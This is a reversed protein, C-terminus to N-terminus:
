SSSRRDTHFSHTGDSGSSNIAPSPTAAVSASTTRRSTSVALTSWTTTTNDLRSTPVTPGVKRSNVRVIRSMPPTVGTTSGGQRNHTPEDREPPRQRGPVSVPNDRRVLESPAQRRSAALAALAGLVGLAFSMRITLRDTVHMEFRPRGHVSLYLYAATIAAVVGPARGLRHGLLAPAVLLVPWAIFRPTPVLAIALAAVLVCALVVETLFKVTVPQEVDFPSGLTADGGPDDAGNTAGAGTAHMESPNCRGVARSLGRQAFNVSGVSKTATRRRKRRLAASIASANPLVIEGLFERM